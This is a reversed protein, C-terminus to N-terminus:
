KRIGVMLVNFPKGCTEGLKVSNGDFGKVTVGSVSAYHEMDKRTGEPCNSACVVSSLTGNKLGRMVTRKGMVLKGAKIADKMEKEAAKMDICSAL